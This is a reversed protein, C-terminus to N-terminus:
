KSKPHKCKNCVEKSKLMKPYIGKPVILREEGIEKYARITGLKPMGREDVQFFYVDYKGPIHPAPISKSVKYENYQIFICIEIDHCKPAVYEKEIKWKQSRILKEYSEVSIEVGLSAEINAGLSEWEAGFSSKIQEKITKTLTKAVEQIDEETLTLNLKSGCELGFCYIADFADIKGDGDKDETLGYTRENPVKRIIRDESGYLNGFKDAYVKDVAFVWGEKRLKESIKAPSTWKARQTSFHDIEVTINKGDPEIQAKAVEVWRLKKEDFEQYSLKRGTQLHIVSDNSVYNLPITVKVKKLFEIKPDTSIKFGSLTLGTQFFSHDKFDKLDVPLSTIDLPKVKITFTKNERLAGQPIEIKIGNLNITGGDPGVTVTTGNDEKALQIFVFTRFDNSIQAIKWSPIYGEKYVSVRVFPPTLNSVSFSGNEDTIVFQREGRSEGNKDLEEITVNVGDIANGEEDLVFGVLTRREALQDNVKGPTPVNSGIGNPFWDESTDTDTSFPDRALSYGPEVFFQSLNVFDNPNWINASVAHDFTIGRPTSYGWAVFDILNSSKNIDEVYLGVADEYDFVSGVDGTFIHAEADDLTNVDNFGEEFHIVVYSFPHMTIPPLNYVFSHDINTIVLGETSQITNGQNYIEVWTSNGLGFMVENIKFAELNRTFIVKTEAEM